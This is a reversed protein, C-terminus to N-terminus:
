CPALSDAKVLVIHPTVVLSMGTLNPVYDMVFGAEQQANPM